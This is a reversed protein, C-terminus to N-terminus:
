INSLQVARWDTFVLQGKENKLDCYLKVEKEEGPKIGFDDTISVYITTNDLRLLTLYKASEDDTRWEVSWM